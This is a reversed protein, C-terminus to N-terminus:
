KNYFLRLLTRTKEIRPYLFISRGHEMRIESMMNMSYTHASGEIQPNRQVIKSFIEGFNRLTTKNDNKM